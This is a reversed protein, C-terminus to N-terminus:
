ELGGPGHKLIGDSREWDIEKAKDEPKEARQALEAALERIEEPSFEALQPEIAQLRPTTM